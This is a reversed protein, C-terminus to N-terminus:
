FSREDDRGDDENESDSLRGEPPASPGSGGPSSTIMTLNSINSFYNVDAIEDM